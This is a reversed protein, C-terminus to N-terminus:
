VSRFSSSNDTQQEQPYQSVLKELQDLHEPHPAEWATIGSNELIQRGQEDETMRSLIERLTEEMGSIHPAICFLDHTFDVSSEALVRTAKRSLKSLSEYTTKSIFLMDVGQRILTQLARIENRATTFQLGSSDLGQVDCVARGLFYFLDSTSTIAVRGKTMEGLARPDEARALIVAQHVKGSARMVPIFRRNKMMTWAEFPAAFLLDTTTETIRQYVSPNEFQISHKLHSQLYSGLDQWRRVGHGMRVAVAFRWVSQRPPPIQSTQSSSFPPASGKSDEKPTSTPMTGSPGHTKSVRPSHDTNASAPNGAARTASDDQQQNKTLFRGLGTIKFLMTNMRSLNIVEIRTDNSEWEKFIKLLLALGMSNIRQVGAFDLQVRARDSVSRLVELTSDSRADICGSLEFKQVEDVTNSAPKVSLSSKNFM